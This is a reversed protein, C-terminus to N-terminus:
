RKCTYSDSRGLMGMDQRGSGWFVSGKSPHRAPTVPSHVCVRFTMDGLTWEGARRERVGAKVVGKTRRSATTMMLREEEETDPVASMDDLTDVSDSGPAVFLDNTGPIYGNMSPLGVLGDPLAIGSLMRGPTM